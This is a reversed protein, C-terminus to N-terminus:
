FKWGVTVFGYDSEFRNNASLDRMWKGSIALRGDAVAPLWVFGVGLGVSRSKFDGLFAGSGSDGTVQRYYYGRAGVAFTSALFQNVAYDLHFETGTRYDTDPNETNVMIGPAVSVETGTATHMWTVAGATDFSWYNRGLNVRNDLDYGGTPAIISEILKMHFEGASWNLQLPVLVIDSLDFRDESRRLVGGFPGTFKARLDAHGFPVLVGVTYVGGLIPREFTYTGVAFDLVLTLDLDFDVLGQLITRGVHGSQIWVLNALQLGPKPAIAFGLDGALGPLYHSAAGEAAWAPRANVPMVAALALVAVAVIRSLGTGSRRGAVLRRMAQRKDM